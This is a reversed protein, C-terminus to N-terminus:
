QLAIMMYIRLLKYLTRNISQKWLSSFVASNWVSDFANEYYFFNIQLIRNKKQPPSDITELYDMTSYTSKFGSKWKPYKDNLKLSSKLM